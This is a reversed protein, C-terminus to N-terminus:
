KLTWPLMALAHAMQHANDFYETNTGEWQRVACMGLCFHKWQAGNYSDATMQFEFFLRSYVTFPGDHIWPALNCLNGSLAPNHRFKVFFLEKDPQVDDEDSDFYSRDDMIHRHALHHVAGDSIRVLIIDLEMRGDDLPNLWRHGNWVQDLGDRWFNWFSTQEAYPLGLANNFIQGGDGDGHIALDVSLVACSSFCVQDEYWHHDRVRIMACYDNLSSPPPRSPWVKAPVDYGTVAAPPSDRAIRLREAHDANASVVWPLDAAHLVRAAGQADIDVAPPIGINWSEGWHMAYVCPSIRVRMLRLQRTEEVFFELRMGIQDHTDLDQHPAWQSIVIGHAMTKLDHLFMLGKPNCAWPNPSFARAGHTFNCVAGDVCRVLTIDVTLSSDNFVHSGCKYRKNCQSYWGSNADLLFESPTLGTDALFEDGGDASMVRLLQNYGEIIDGPLYLSDFDLTSHLLSSSPELSNLVTLPLDDDDDPFRGEGAFVEANDRQPSHVKVTITYASLPVPPPTSMEQPGTSTLARAIRLNLGGPDLVIVGCKELASTAPFSGALIARLGPPTAARFARNVTACRGLDALTPLFCLVYELLDGGGLVEQRAIEELQQKQGSSPLPLPTPSPLPPVAESKYLHRGAFHQLKGAAMSAPFDEPPEDNLADLLDRRM